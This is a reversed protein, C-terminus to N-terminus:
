DSFLIYANLKMGPILRIKLPLNEIFDRPDVADPHSPHKHKVKKVGEKTFEIIIIIGSTKKMIRACEKLAKEREGIHHLSGYLFIADFSNAEFPLNEARFNRFEIQDSVGAEKAFDYWEGWNHGEPEGTIVNYGNVALLVAMRGGGTGIDLIKSNKKLNLEDLVTQLFLINLTYKDGFIERLKKLDM